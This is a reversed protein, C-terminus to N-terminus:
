LFAPLLNGQNRCSFPYPTWETSKRDVSPVETKTEFIVGRGDPYTNELWFVGGALFLAIKISYCAGILSASRGKGFDTLDLQLEAIGKCSGDTVFESTIPSKWSGYVAEKQVSM